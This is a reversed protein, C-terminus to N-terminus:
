SGPSNVVSSATPKRWGEVGARVEDLIAQSGAALRERWRELWAAVVEESVEANDAFPTRSLSRLMRVAMGSTEAYGRLFATSAFRELLRLLADRTPDDSAGLASARELTQSGFAAYYRDLLTTDRDILWRDILMEVAVHGAIQTHRISPITDRLDAALMTVRRQFEPHGHFVADARMHHEIGDALMGCQPDDAARLERVIALPLPRRPLLVWLDPLTAGVRTLAPSGVPLIVDHSLFNM